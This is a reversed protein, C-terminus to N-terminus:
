IRPFGHCHLIIVGLLNHSGCRSLVEGCLRWKGERSGVGQFYIWFFRSFRCFSIKLKIWIWDNEWWVKMFITTKFREVWISFTFTCSAVYEIFLHSHSPRCRETKQYCFNLNQLSNLTSHTLSILPFGKCQFTEIWAKQFNKLRVWILVFQFNRKM